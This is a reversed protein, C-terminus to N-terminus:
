GTLNLWAKGHASVSHMELANRAMKICRAQGDGSTGQAGGTRGIATLAHLLMMTELHLDTAANLLLTEDADEPIGLARCTSKRFETHDAM